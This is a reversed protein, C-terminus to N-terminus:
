RMSMSRTPILPIRPAPRRGCCGSFAPRGEGGAGELSRIRRVGPVMPLCAQRQRDGGQGAGGEACEGTPGRGEAPCRDEQRDRCRHPQRLLLRRQRDHRDARGQRRAGGAGRCLCPRGRHYSEQSFLLTVNISLGDEILQRIAPAGAKTGPVKVMLNPRDVAKWLRRAEEITTQTGNALYPSVELSVYGDKGGLRDYVPRLTDAADQIDKIALAEYTDTISAGAHAQVFDNFQDDYAEGHGMAKEFISPNSTVGTVGDEEVLKKLGGEHLFKRDVFDLWPAQGSEQLQKLLSVQCEGRHGSAGDELVKDVTFGFKDQLKAIPASAGFSAMAIVKGSLGVYRDWGIESGQEM